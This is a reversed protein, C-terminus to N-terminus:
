GSQNVLLGIIKDISVEAKLLQEPPIQRIVDGTQPNKVQVVMHGTDKHISVALDRSFAQLAKALREATREVSQSQLDPSANGQGGDESSELVDQPKSAPAPDDVRPRQLFRSGEIAVINEM